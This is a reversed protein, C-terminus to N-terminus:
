IKTLALIAQFKQTLKSSIILNTPNTNKEFNHFEPSRERILKNLIKKSNM